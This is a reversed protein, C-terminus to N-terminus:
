AHNHGWHMCARLKGWLTSDDDMGGTNRKISQQDTPPVVVDVARYKGVNNLQENELRFLNWVARRIIEFTALITAFSQQIRFSFISLFISPCQNPLVSRISSIFIYSYSPSSCYCSSISVLPDLVLGMSDPSISFTWM